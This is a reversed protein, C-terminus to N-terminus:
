WGHAVVSATYAEADEAAALEKLPADAVADTGHTFLQVKSNVADFSTVFANDVTDPDVAPGVQVFKLGNLGFTAATVAEGGAPYADDFALTGYVVQNDGYVSQHSKTFAVAM